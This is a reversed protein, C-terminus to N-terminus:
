RPSRSRESRSPVRASIRSVSRSSSFRLKPRPSGTRVSPLSARRPMGASSRTSSIPGAALMVSARTARQAVRLLQSGLTTQEEARKTRLPEIAQWAIMGEDRGFADSTLFPQNRTYARGVLREGELLALGAFPAGVMAAAREVVTQLLDGMDRRDLLDLTFRHLAALNEGHQKLAAEARNRETVDTMVALSRAAGADTGREPMASVVVDIVEGNKKV